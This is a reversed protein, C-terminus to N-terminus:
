LPLSQLIRCYWHTVLNLTFPFPCCLRFCMNRSVKLQKLVDPRGSVTIYSSMRADSLNVQQTHVYVAPLFAIKLPKSFVSGSFVQLSFNTHLISKNVTPMGSPIIVCGYTGAFCYVLGTMNSDARGGGVCLLFEM